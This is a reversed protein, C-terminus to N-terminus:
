EPIFEEPDIYQEPNHHIGIINYQIHTDKLIKVGDIEFDQTAQQNFSATAVGDIRQCEKIFLGLYEFKELNDKTINEVKNDLIKEIERELIVRKEPHKHLRYTINTLEHSVTDFGACLFM